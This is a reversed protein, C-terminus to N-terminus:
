QDDGEFLNMGRMGEVRNLLQRRERGIVANIMSALTWGFGYGFAGAEFFGLFAGTWSVEYGLLYQGLLSLNPGISDGGKILLAATALFVLAGSLMGIASGLAVADYKAFVQSLAEGLGPRAVRAPVLRDGMTSSKSDGEREEEHYDDEVNVDWIDHKEGIINQAAYVATMMSHDQNNYRHQGNRGILQLNELGALWGRIIELSAQYQDDYVPYAKPMRVVTGDIVDEANALELEAIEKRGLEILDADSMSWVDDGEQVFYELGLATRKPDAVMHPSWNKFNQVRGVKVNESHIYIWNDPFLEDQDIILAVTLFDRYRLGEAADLVEQPPPPDLSRILTRIPM